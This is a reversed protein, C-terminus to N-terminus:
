KEKKTNKKEKILEENEYIGEVSQEKSDKKSALFTVREAIIEVKKYETGRTYLWIKTIMKWIMKMYIMMMMYSSISTSKAM